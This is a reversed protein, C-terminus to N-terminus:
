SINPLSLQRSPKTQSRASVRCFSALQVTFNCNFQLCQVPVVVGQWTKMATKNAGLVGFCLPLLPPGCSVEPLLEPWLSVEPLLLLGCSV